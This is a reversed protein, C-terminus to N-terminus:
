NINTEIAQCLALIRAEDHETEVQGDKMRQEIIQSSGFQDLLDKAVQIQDVLNENRLKWTEATKKTCEDQYAMYDKQAKEMIKGGVAQEKSRDLNSIMNNEMWNETKM